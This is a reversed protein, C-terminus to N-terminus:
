LCSMAEARVKPKSLSTSKSLDLPRANPPDKSFATTTPSFLINFSSPNLNLSSNTLCLIKSEM